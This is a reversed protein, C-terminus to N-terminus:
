DLIMFVPLHDHVSLIRRVAIASASSAPEARAAEACSVRVTPALMPLTGHSNWSSAPWNTPKSISRTAATASRMPASTSVTFMGKLPSNEATCDPRISMAVLEMVMM